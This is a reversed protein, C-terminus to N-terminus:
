QAPHASNQSSRASGGASRIIAAFIPALQAGTALLSRCSSPSRSSRRAPPSRVRARAWRRCRSSSAAAQSLCQCRDTSRIGGAGAAVIWGPDQGQPVHSETTQEGRKSKTLPGPGLLIRPGETPPLERSVGDAAEGLRPARPCKAEALGRDFCSRATAWARPCEM